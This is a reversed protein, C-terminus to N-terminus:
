LLANRALVAASALTEDYASVARNGAKTGAIFERLEDAPMSLARDIVAEVVDGALNVWDSQESSPYTAAITDRVKM